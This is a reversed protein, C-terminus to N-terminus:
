SSLRELERLMDPAHLIDMLGALAPQELHGRLCHFEISDERRLDFNSLEGPRRHVMHEGLRACLYCLALRAGLRPELAQAPTVLIQDIGRVEDIIAPPLKWEQMMLFGIESACLGLQEQEAQTRQFLGQGPVVAHGAQRMLAVAAFQGLFSLVLQTALTGGDPWRLKQALLLCMESAVASARWLEDFHKRLVPDSSKFSDDMLYQLCIARVSNLGLFTIAQGISAVPQRLGYMPANVAAVVRAAVVPEGMVLDSLEASSARALFEPSVLRQLVKSPQPIQQLQEILARYRLPPIQEARMLRLQQSEALAALPAPMTAAPAAHAFPPTDSLQPARDAVPAKAAPAPQPTAAAPRAAEPAPAPQTRAAPRAAPPDARRPRLFLFALLAVVLVGGAVLALMM